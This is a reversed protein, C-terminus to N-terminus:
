VIKVFNLVSERFKDNEIEVNSLFEEANIAFSKEDFEQYYDFLKDISNEEDDKMIFGLNHKSVIESMYTGENVIIPIYLNASYYLKNSLAYNLLPSNNGYLNYIIDSKKYYEITKEPNFRGVLRVNRINNDVIFKKLASSGEGIFNLQFREDNKFRLINRKNEDNFRILGIYSIQINKQKKVKNLFMSREQSSIDVDNHVKIYDFKPLFNKFGESSIITNFSNEVLKKIIKYFVTNKELTYDRIDLIYKNKMKNILYNCLVVGTISQLLVIGDYNQKKITKLAFNRFAFYGILKKMKNSNELMEYDFSHTNSKKEEKLSHRNWFIIEYECDIISLYKKIYPSLYLNNMTIFCIKKNKMKEGFLSILM